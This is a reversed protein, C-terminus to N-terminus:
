DDYRDKVMVTLELPGLRFNVSGGRVRAKVSRSPCEVLFVQEFDAPPAWQTGDPYRTDYVFVVADPHDVVEHFRVRLSGMSQLAVSVDVSPRTPEGNQGVFPLGLGSPAAPAAAKEQDWPRAVQPSGQPQQGRFLNLLHALAAMDVPPAAPYAPPLPPPPEAPALVHPPVQDAPGAPPPPVAPRYAAPSAVTRAPSPSSAAARGHSGEPPFEAVEPPPSSVVASVGEGIRRFASVVDSSQAVARRSVDKVQSMDAGTPDILLPERGPAHLIFPGPRSPDFSGVRGHKDAIPIITTGPKVEHHKDPDDTWARLGPKLEVANKSFLSDLM